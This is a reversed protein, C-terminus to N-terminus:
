PPASSGLRRPPLRRSSPRSRKQPPTLSLRRRLIIPHPPGSVPRMSVCRVPRTPEGEALWDALEAHGQRRAIGLPTWREKTRADLPAGARVLLQAIELHGTSCACHLPQYDGGNCSDLKSGMSLLWRAIASQGNYCAVHLPQGGNQVPAHVMAPDKAVIWEAVAFSGYKCAYHIPQSGNQPNRIDISVGMEEVLVRTLELQGEGCAHHLPQNGCNDLTYLM